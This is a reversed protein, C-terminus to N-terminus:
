RGSDVGVKQKRSTGAYRVTRSDFVTKRGTRPEKPVRGHSAGTM